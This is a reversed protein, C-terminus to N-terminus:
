LLACGRSRHHLRVSEPQGPGAFADYLAYYMNRIEEGDETGERILAEAKERAERFVALSKETWSRGEETQDVTEEMKTLTNSAYGHHIGAGAKVMLYSLIPDGYQNTRKPSHVMVNLEGDTVAAAYRKEILTEQQLSVSTGATRGELKVDVDRTSWPNM